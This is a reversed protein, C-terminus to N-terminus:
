QDIRTESVNGNRGDVWGGLAGGVVLEGSGVEMWGGVWACVCVSVWGVLWGGVGRKERVIM